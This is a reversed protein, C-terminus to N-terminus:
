KNGEHSTRPQEPSEVAAAALTPTRARLSGWHQCFEGSPSSRPEAIYLAGSQLVQAGFKAPNVLALKVKNQSVPPSLIIIILIVEAEGLGALGVM